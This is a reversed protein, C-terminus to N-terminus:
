TYRIRKYLRHFRPLSQHLHCPLQSNFVGTCDVVHCYASVRLLVYEPIILIAVQEIRTQCLAHARIRHPYVYKAQHVIVQM